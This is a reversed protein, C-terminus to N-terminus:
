STSCGPSSSRGSTAASTWCSNAAPTIHVMVVRRDDTDGRREGLGNRELRSV